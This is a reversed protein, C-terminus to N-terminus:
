KQPEKKGAYFIFWVAAAASVVLVAFVAPSSLVKELLRILKQPQWLLCIGVAVSAVASVLVAGAAVDKAVKALPHRDPSILDVIAEALTNLLELVFVISVTLFLVALRVADLDLCAALALTYAAVVLHIRFNREHRICHWIGEAAYRFSKVLSRINNKM